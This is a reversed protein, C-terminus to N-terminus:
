RTPRLRARDGHYRSRPTVGRRRRRDRSRAPVAAGPVPSWLRAAIRGPTRRRRVARYRRRNRSPTLPGRVVHRRAPGALAIRGACDTFPSVKPQEARVVARLLEFEERCAPSRLIEALVERREEESGRRELVDIMRELSVECPPDSAARRATSRAYLERMREENM